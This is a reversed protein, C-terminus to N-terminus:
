REEEVKRLLDALDAAGIQQTFSLYDRRAESLINLYREPGESLRTQVDAVATPKGYIRRQYESAFAYYRKLRGLDEKKGLRVRRFIGLSVLLDDANAKYIWYSQVRDQLARAVAEYVDTEYPSLVGSVSLLYEPDIYSVLVGGLYTNVEEEGEGPAEDMKLRIRTKLLIELIYGLTGGTQPGPVSIYPTDARLRM